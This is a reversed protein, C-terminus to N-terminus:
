IPPLRLLHHASKTTLPTLPSRPLHHALQAIIPTAPSCPLHHTPYSTLPAPPACSHISRSRYHAPNSILPTPSLSVKLCASVNGAAEELLAYETYIPLATREKKLIAKAKALFPKADSWSLSRTKVCFRCWRFFDLHRTFHVHKACPLSSFQVLANRNQRM